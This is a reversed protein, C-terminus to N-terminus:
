ADKKFEVGGIPLDDVGILLDTDGEEDDSEM